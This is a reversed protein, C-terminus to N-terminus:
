GWVWLRRSVTQVANVGVTRTDAFFVNNFLDIDIRGWTFKHAGPTIDDPMKFQRRLEVPSSYHLCAPM